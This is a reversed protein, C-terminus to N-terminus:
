PGAHWFRQRDHREERVEAIGEAACVRLYVAGSTATNLLEAGVAQWRDVIAEKPFGWRNGYSASVIAVVPSVSDVFPVSSSTTSGHHPVIVVDAGLQTEAQVLSREARAEIDGTLLMAHAGASVRLVCSANNGRAAEGADPHLVDFRIAGSWWSQGLACQWAETGPLAEGVLTPGVDFREHLVSAGGSHDLDAHSIVLRDVVSVGRSELFPGIVQEVASGGGRWAMGTDYLVVERSTQVAVALGQGVDLTWADFCDPPPPPPKWSLIGVIGLVALQRGPWSRPLLVWTLPLLLLLAAGGNFRPLTWTAPVTGLALRIVADLGDVSHAALRLLALSATESVEGVILAAVTLPVTVLSFLPVAVLNVPTALPTFRQFFLATLPLLGFLLFVQMIVLQRPAERWRPREAVPAQRQALWLLLAVAGFSLHFGPTLTAIPDTVFVVLGALGVIAPGALQRRRALALTAALLMISARRAPVGFGSVLAYTVACLAGVALAAVYHNGRCPMLGAIGFAVVFAALAALGVHLGSIAMLHTTGSAAFRDWQERSVLHRAGTGIATLVAAATDSGAAIRARRAFRDRFADVNSATGSWLLRNRKGTVVYGTAHYKERFLWSEYDFVGPNITGRPRRLRLELEWVEGIFPEVPPDFWSVRMRAPLRPDDVPELTMAVADGTRKPFDAIRVAALMSDGEFRADLRGAMVDIGATMFMAFGALVIAPARSRPLVLGCLSAVFLLSLCDSPLAPTTLQAALGGALLLFCSKVVPQPAVGAAEM